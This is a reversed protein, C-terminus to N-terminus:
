RRGAQDPAGAAHTYGVDKQQLLCVPLDAGGKNRTSLDAILKRLKEREIPKTLHGNMGANLCVDRYEATAHATLGFILPQRDPPLRKRIERTAELGDVGPMQLDM